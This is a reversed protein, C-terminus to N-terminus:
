RKGNTMSDHCFRSEDSTVPFNNRRDERALVGANGPQTNIKSSDIPCGTTALNWDDTGHEYKEQHPTNNEFAHQKSRETRRQKQM